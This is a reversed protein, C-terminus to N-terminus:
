RAARYCGCSAAELGARDLVTVRGRAYGIVGVKQLIGATAWHREPRGEREWVAHARESLRQRRAEDM